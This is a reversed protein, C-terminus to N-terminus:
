SHRKRPRTDASLPPQVLFLASFFSIVLLIFMFCAMNSVFFLYVGQPITDGQEGSWFGESSAQSSLTRQHM